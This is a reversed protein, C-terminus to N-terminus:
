EPHISSRYLSDLQSPKPGAFSIWKGDATHMAASGDDHVITVSGDGHTFSKDSAPPPPPVPKRGLLKIFIAGVIPKVALMALGAIFTRLAFHAGTFFGVISVVVALAGVLPLLSYIMFVLSVVIGGVTMAAVKLGIWNPRKEENATDETKREEKTEAERALMATATAVDGNRIAREIATGRVREALAEGKEIIRKADVTELGMELGRRGITPGYHLAREAVLAVLASEKADVEGETARSVISM